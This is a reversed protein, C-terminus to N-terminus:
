ILDNKIISQYTLMNNTGFRTDQSKVLDLIMPNNLSNINYIRKAGNRNNKGQFSM